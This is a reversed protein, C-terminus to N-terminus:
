SRRDEHRAVAPPARERQREYQRVWKRVANDSVGYRRGVASWSSAEVEALLQALPPREVVRRHPQPVDPKTRGDCAYSCSKRARNDSVFLAGCGPCTRATRPRRLAKGCHTELTAAGNPCVIQLNELRNDTAEGNIHDLILSMQSGRWLGSRVARM